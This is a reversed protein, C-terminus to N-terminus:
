RRQQPIPVGPPGPAPCQNRLILSRRTCTPSNVSTHGSAVLLALKSPRRVCHLAITLQSTPSAPAEVEEAGVHVAPFADFAACPIRTLQQGESFVTEGAFNANERSASQVKGVKGRRSGEVVEQGYNTGEPLSRDWTVGCGEVWINNRREMATSPETRYVRAEM